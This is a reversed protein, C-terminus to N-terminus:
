KDKKNGNGNGNGNNGQSNGNGNGNNGQNNGNGNGNNGQGNGPKTGSNEAPKVTEGDDSGNKTASCDIPMSWRSPQTSRRMAVAALQAHAREARARQVHRGAVAPEDRRDRHDAVRDRAAVRDDLHRRVIREGRHRQRARQGLDRRAVREGAVERHGVPLAAVGRDLLPEVSGLVDLLDDGPAAERRHLVHRAVDLGPELQDREIGFRLAVIM